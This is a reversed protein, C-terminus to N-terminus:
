VPVKIDGSRRFSSDGTVIFCHNQYSILKMLYFQYIKPTLPLITPSLPRDHKYAFRIM